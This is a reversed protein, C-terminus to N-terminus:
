QYIGSSRRLSLGQGIYLPYGNPIVALLRSLGYWALVLVLVLLAGIGLWIMRKQPKRFTPQKQQESARTQHRNTLLLFVSCINWGGVSWLPPASVHVKWVFCTLAVSIPPVSALLLWTTNNIQSSADLRLCNRFPHRRHYFSSSPM